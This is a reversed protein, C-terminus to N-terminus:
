LGLVRKAAAVADPSRDGANYKDLLRSESTSGEAPAQSTDYQQAPVQEKKLKTIEAKLKTVESQSSAQKEMDQPNDYQMLTKPSIGYKDGIEMAANFKGRYYADLNQINQTYQQENARTQKLQQTLQDAQAQEMGQDVLASNYQVAESEIAQKQKEVEYQMVQQQLSDQYKRTEELQKNLSEADIKPTEVPAETTEGSSVQGDDQSVPAEAPTTETTVESPTTDTTTPEAPTDTAPAETSPAAPAPEANTSDLSLQQENNETVM